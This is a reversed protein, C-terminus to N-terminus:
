PVNESAARNVCNSNSGEAGQALHHRDVTLRKPATARFALGRIVAGAGFKDRLSDIASNARKKAASTRTSSTATIPPKPPRSIPPPSALCDFASATWKRKWCIRARGPVIPDGTPDARLGLPRAHAIQLRRDAAEADRKQLRAAAKEAPRRRTRVPAALHADSAGQRRQRYRLDDRSFHKQDRARADRAPRRPRARPALAPRRGPRPPRVDDGRGVGSHRRDPALGGPEPSRQAVKGVGWIRRVPLPALLAM